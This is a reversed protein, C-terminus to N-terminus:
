KIKGDLLWEPGKASKGKNWADVIHQLVDVKHYRLTEIAEAYQKYASRESGGGKSLERHIVKLLALALDPNIQSSEFLSQFLNLKDAASPPRFFDKYLMSSSNM